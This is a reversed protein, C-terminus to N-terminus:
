NTILANSNIRYGVLLADRDSIRYTFTEEGTTTAKRLEDGTETYILDFQQATM